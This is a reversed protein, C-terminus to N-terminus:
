FIDIMLAMGFWNVRGYDITSYPLQGSYYEAWIRLLAKSRRRFCIGIATRIDPVFDNEALLKLDIGAFPNVPKSKEFNFVGGAQFSLRERYVYPNYILGAGAYLFDADHRFLYTLDAQEFNVSKDNTLTDPNRQVYDDGLHSSIHFIRIRFLNNKKQLSYDCSLKFDTNMLGALYSDDDRKVLDFQSFAAAGFNLEWSIEKGYKAIVPRSFGLNVTSYLSLQENKRNLFYTGGMVQCELPDLFMVPFVRKDPFIILTSDKEAPIAKLPTIFGLFVTLVLIIKLM